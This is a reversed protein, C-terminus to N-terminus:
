VKSMSWWANVRSRRTVYYVSRGQVSRLAKNVQSSLTTADSDSLDSVSLVYVVGVLVVVIVDVSLRQTRRDRRGGAWAMRM